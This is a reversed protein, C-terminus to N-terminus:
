LISIREFSVRRINGGHEAIVRAAAHLKGPEDPMRAIFSFTEM